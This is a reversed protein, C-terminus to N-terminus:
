VMSGMQGLGLRLMLEGVANPTLVGKETFFMSICSPPTYDVEPNSLLCDGKIFGVFFSM